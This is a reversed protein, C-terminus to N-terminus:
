KKNKIKKYKIKKERVGYIILLYYKSIIDFLMINYLM